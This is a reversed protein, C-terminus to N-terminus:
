LTKFRRLAGRNHFIYIAITESELGGENYRDTAVTASLMTDWTRLLLDPDTTYNPISYYTHSPSLRVGRCDTYRIM